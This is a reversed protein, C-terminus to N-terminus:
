YLQRAWDRQPDSEGVLHWHRCWMNNHACGYRGPGRDGCTYFDSRKYKRVALIGTTCVFAATVFALSVNYIRLLALKQLWRPAVENAKSRRIVWWRAGLSILLPAAILLTSINVVIWLGHREDPNTEFIDHWGQGHM